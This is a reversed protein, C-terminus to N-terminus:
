AGNSTDCTLLPSAIPWPPLRHLARFRLQAKNRSDSLKAPTEAQIRFLDKTKHSFSAQERSKIQPKLNATSTTNM